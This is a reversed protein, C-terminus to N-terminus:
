IKILDKITDELFKMMNEKMITDEYYKINFYDVFYSEIRSIIERLLYRANLLNNKIIMVALIDKGPELLILKDKFEIIDVDKDTKTLNKILRTIGSIGGAFWHEKKIESELFNKHYISLDRNKDIIYVSILNDKWQSELFFSYGTFGLLIMFEGIIAAVKFFIIMLPHFEVFNIIFKFRIDQVLLFNFSTLIMGILAWILKKRIDGFTNIIFYLTAFMPFISNLINFFNYFSNFNPFIVVFPITLTLILFIITFIYRTKRIKQFEREIGYSFILGGVGKFLSSIMFFFRYYDDPPPFVSITVTILLSIAFFLYFNGYSLIILNNLRKKKEKYWQRIFILAIQIFIIPIIFSIAVNLDVLAQLYNDFQM